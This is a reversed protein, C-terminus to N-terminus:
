IRNSMYSYYMTCVYKKKHLLYRYGAVGSVNM